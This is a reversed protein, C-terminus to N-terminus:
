INWTIIFLITFITSVLLQRIGISTPKAGMAPHITCYITEVWQIFYSLPLFKPIIATVSLAIVFLSNFTAYALARKGIILRTKLDPPIQLERQFLRMYAHVISAASQLWTLIFLVWGTKEPSGVGIWYAAPASLALVGSAVIEVGVQRRESRHYVLYLHWTFVAVGPILLILLYSYGMWLLAGLLLGGLTGYVVIWFIAAQKDRESRRGSFVKVLIVTPQRILFGALCAVVLLLSAFYWNSSAFLGILLPSLLFVWSGHDQPIAIHRIFVSAPKM